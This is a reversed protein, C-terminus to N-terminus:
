IIKNSNKEYKTKFVSIIIDKNKLEKIKMKQELSLIKGEYIFYLENRDQNIISCYKLLLDSLFLDKSVNIMEFKNKLFIFKIKAM